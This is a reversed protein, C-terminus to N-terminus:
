TYSKCKSMGQFTTLGLKSAPHAGPGMEIELTHGRGETAWWERVNGSPLIVGLGNRCANRNTCICNTM